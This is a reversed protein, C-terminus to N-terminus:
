GAASAPGLKARIWRCITSDASAFGDVASFHNAGALPVCEASNGAGTWAAHLGQSQRHFEASEDAGWAIFAPTSSRRVAFMPSNRAIQEPTLRVQPQLYSRAIPAIDYLGSVPVACRLPDTADLGFDRWEATLCMATLHGGASHGGVGLRSADGGYDGIHRVTWAVAARCQRVIEDITVIPCLAYNVVVATCGSAVLGNAVWSWERSTFARWYGGHLFVFVPAKAGGAGAAPFIDLTEAASPGYAVDLTCALRERALRSQEAWMPAYRASDAVAAGANYQADVAPDSRFAAWPDAGGPDSTINTM